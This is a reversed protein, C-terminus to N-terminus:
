PCVRWPCSPMWLILTPIAGDRMDPWPILDIWIAHPTTLQQTTPRAWPPLRHFNEQTPFILWRLILFMIYAIGVKNAIINVDPFPGLIDRLFRSMPHCPIEHAADYAIAAFNPYAPGLIEYESAGQARRSQADLTFKLLLGDFVSAATTWPPISEWLQRSNGENRHHSPQHHLMRTPSTLINHHDAIVSSHMAPARGDDIPHLQTHLEPRGTHHLNLDRREESNTRVSNPTSANYSGRSSITTSTRRIPSDVTSATQATSTQWLPPSSKPISAGAAGFSPITIETHAVGVHNGYTHDPPHNLIADVSSRQVDAVVNSSLISRILDLVASLRRKIEVNELEILEKQRLINQLEQYPQQSTLEKIRKELSEIQSKTRERIARQAERDNARKKALQEVSLNAVGRSSTVAKRKRENSAGSDRPTSASDFGNSTTPSILNDTNHLSANSESMM